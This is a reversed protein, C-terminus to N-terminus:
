ERFKNINIMRKKILNGLSKRNIKALDAARSINGHTVTLLRELYCIECKTLAEERIDELPRIPEPINQISSKEEFGIDQKRLVLWERVKNELERVNGPWAYNLWHRLLAPPIELLDSDDAYKRAFHYALAGIDAKRERLSPIMLPIVNLRYYLDKRFSHTHITQELDINSVSIVHIDVAVYGTQGLPKFQKEQLFRLFRSQIPLPLSEIEDLLLTGGDAEQILGKSAPGADTFAGRAHGFLENEVLHEPIAGCDVTIFPQGSRPGLYHIARAILEKGTGTEGTILVPAQSNALTPLSCLIERMAHSKAVIQRQRMESRLKDQLKRLRTIYKIKNLLITKLKTREKFNIQCCLPEELGYCLCLDQMIQDPKPVLSIIPVIPFTAHLWEFIQLESSSFTTFEIIFIDPRTTLKISTQQSVDTLTCATNDLERQLEAALWQAADGSTVFFHINEM